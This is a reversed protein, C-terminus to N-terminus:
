LVLLTLYYVTFAILFIKGIEETPVSKTALSRVATLGTHSFINLLPASYYWPRTPAFAFMFCSAIRSAGALAGIASDQVSLRKSLVSICFM